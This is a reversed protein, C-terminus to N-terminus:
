GGVGAVSFPAVAEQRGTVSRRARVADALTRLVPQTMEWGMCSDTISQGYVLDSSATLDQRGDVLFSELMVGTLGADQSSGRAIQAALSDAVHPQRRYDKGSNGHSADVVLREPLGASRLAQLAHQVHGPEYNPGSYGGRLILHTDPNGTTTVVNPAADEGMGFFSQPAAAARLGDIGAQVRGDSGNKFGVPMPLGSALQRHIQSEATRAGIAGWSVTDAVYQPCFPDLFECGAPVGLRNLELLLERALWLGEAGSCSGDLYPDNVLGKWGVTTRPKELYVRMVICLDDALDAAVGRLRAAYDLVAEPDHSSCPGVVVLIRDDDGDLIRTVDRRARDVTVAAQGDLPFRALVDAPSSLPRRSAIRPTRHHEAM